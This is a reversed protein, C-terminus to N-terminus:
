LNETPDRLWEVRLSTGTIEVYPTDHRDETREWVDGDSDIFYDLHDVLERGEADVVRFLPGRYSESRNCASDPCWGSDLLIARCSLCRGGPVQPSPTPDPM